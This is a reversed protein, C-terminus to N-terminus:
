KYFPTPKPIIKYFLGLFSDYILKSPLESHWSHLYFLLLKFFQRNQAWNWIVKRESCGTYHIVRSISLISFILEYPEISFFKQFSSKVEIINLWTQNQKTEELSSKKLISYTISKKIIYSPM